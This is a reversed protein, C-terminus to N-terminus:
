LFFMQYISIAPGVNAGAKSLRWDPFGPIAYESALNPLADHCPVLLIKALINLKKEEL